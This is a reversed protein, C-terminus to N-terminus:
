LQFFCDSIYYPCYLVVCVNLFGSLISIFSLLWTNINPSLTHRSLRVKSSNICDTNPFTETAWSPWSSRLKRRQSILATWLTQQKSRSSLFISFCYVPKLIHIFPPFPSSSYCNMTKRRKASVNWDLSVLTGNPRASLIILHVRIIHLFIIRGTQNPTAPDCLVILISLFFLLCFIWIKEEITKMDRLGWSDLGISCRVKVSTLYSM